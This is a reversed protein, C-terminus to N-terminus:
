QSSSALSMRGSHNYLHAIDTYTVRKATKQPLTLKHGIFIVKIATDVLCYLYGFTLRLVSIFISIESPTKGQTRFFFATVSMPLIIAFIMIFLKCIEFYFFHMRNNRIWKQRNEISAYAFAGKMRFIQVPIGWGMGVKIISMLGYLLWQRSAKMQKFNSSLFACVLVTVVLLCISGVLEARGRRLPAAPLSFAFHFVFLATVIRLIAAGGICVMRHVIEEGESIVISQKGLRYLYLLLLYLGAMGGPMAVLVSRSLLLYKISLKALKVNHIFMGALIHARRRCFPPMLSILVAAFVGSISGYMMQGIYASDEIVEWVGVCGVVVLIPLTVVSVSYAITKAIYKSSFSHLIMLSAFLFVNGCVVMKLCAWWCYQVCFVSDPIYIPVEVIVYGLFFFYYAVMYIPISGIFLWFFINTAVRTPRAYAELQTLRM